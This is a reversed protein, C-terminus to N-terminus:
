PKQFGQHPVLVNKGSQMGIRVNSQHVTKGPPILGRPLFTVPLGNRVKPIHEHMGMRIDVACAATRARVDRGLSRQRCLMPAFRAMQAFSQGFANRLTAHGMVHLPQIGTKKRPRTIWTIRINVHVHEIIRHKGHLATGRSSINVM